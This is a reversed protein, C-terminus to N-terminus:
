GAKQRRRPPRKSAAEGNRSFHEIVQLGTGIV